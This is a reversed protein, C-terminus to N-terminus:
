DEYNDLGNTVVKTSTVRVKGKIPKVMWIAGLAVITHNKCRGVGPLVINVNTTDDGDGLGFIGLINNSLKVVEGFVCSSLVLTMMVLVLLLSIIKIKM